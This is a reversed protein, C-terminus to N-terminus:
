VEQAGKLTDCGEDLVQLVSNVLKVQYFWQRGIPSFHEAGQENRNVAVRVSNYGIVHNIFSHNELSTM